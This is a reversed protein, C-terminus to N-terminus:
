NINLNVSSSVDHDSEIKRTVPGETEHYCDMIYLWLFDWGSVYDTEDWILATANWKDVITLLEGNLFRNCM